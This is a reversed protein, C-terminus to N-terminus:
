VNFDIWRIKWENKVRPQALDSTFSLTTHTSVVFVLTFSLSPFSFSFSVVTKSTNSRSSDFLWNAFINPYINKKKTMLHSHFSLLWSVFPELLDEVASLGVCVSVEAGFLFVALWPFM